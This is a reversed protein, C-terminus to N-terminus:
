PKLQSPQIEQTAARFAAATAATDSAAQAAALRVDNDNREAVLLDLLSAGGKQYAYAMTKRIQESKPGISQRYSQWRKLADEYALRAVAIDAIAQAKAKEFALRAQEMASEAALINGRNRNWLPLPLSVGFGVSNPFDPPQHEYEAMVTPDPVRLSKQFRLDAEAKRLTAEAAVVDPRWTGISNTNAPAPLDCLKDL